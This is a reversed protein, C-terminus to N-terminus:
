ETYFTHVRPGNETQEIKRHLVRPVIKKETYEIKRRVVRPPSKMAEDETLDVIENKSREPAGPCSSLRPSRRPTEPCPCAKMCAQQFAPHTQSVFPSTSNNPVLPPMDDEDEEVEDEEVGNYREAIRSCSMKRLQYDDLDDDEEECEEEECEEDEEECEECIGQAQEADKEAKIVEERTMNLPWNDITLKVSNWLTEFVVSKLMDNSKILVTPSAPIFLQVQSYPQSDWRMLDFCNSLQEKLQEENYWNVQRSHACKDNWIWMFNDPGNRRITLIHDNERKSDIDTIFLLQIPSYCVMKEEVNKRAAVERL